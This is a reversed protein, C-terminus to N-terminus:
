PALLREATRVALACATLTPNTACATPIAGTGAVYLNEFRWVRGYRDAVSCGDDRDGLRTTGMLHM